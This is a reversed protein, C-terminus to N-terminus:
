PSRAHFDHAQASTAQLLFTPVFHLALQTRWSVQSYIALSVDKPAYRLETPCPKWPTSVSAAKGDWDAGQWAVCFFDQLCWFSLV